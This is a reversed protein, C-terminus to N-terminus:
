FVCEKNNENLFQYPIWPPPLSGVWVCEKNNENLFQYPIWPPPLSDVWVCEKNNENLFQYPKGKGEGRSAGSTMSACDNFVM